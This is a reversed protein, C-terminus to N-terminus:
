KRLLIVSQFSNSIRLNSPGCHFYPIEAQAMGIIELRILINATIEKLILCYYSWFSLKKSKLKSLLKKIKM